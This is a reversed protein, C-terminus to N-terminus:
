GANAVDIPRLTASSPRGAEVFRKFSAVLQSADEVASEPPRRGPGHELAYTMLTGRECPEFRTFGRVADRGGTRPRWSVENRPLDYDYILTYSQSTALEFSVEEVLGDSRKRVATAKRLGPVWAVLLDVANFVDWCTALSRNILMVHSLLNDNATPPLMPVEPEAGLLCRAV